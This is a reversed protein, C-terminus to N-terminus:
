HTRRWISAVSYQLVLPFPHPLTSNALSFPGPPLALALTAIVQLMHMLDVESEVEREMIVACGSSLRVSVSQWKLWMAGGEHAPLSIVRTQGENEKHSSKFPSIAIECFKKRRTISVSGADFSGRSASMHKEVEDCQRIRSLIV